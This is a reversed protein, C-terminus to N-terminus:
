RAIGEQPDLITTVIVIESSRFGRATKRANEGDEADDARSTPLREFEERSIGFSKLWQEPRRWNVLADEEGLRAGTRFDHSRRQHLRFVVDGGRQVIRVIDVYSCYYRDALALTGDGIHDHMQRFLATESDHLSGM